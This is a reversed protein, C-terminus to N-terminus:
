GARDYGEGTQHGLPDTVLTPRKLADYATSIVKGLGDTETTVNGDADFGTRTVQKVSTGVAETTVTERNLADYGYSILHNLPDTVTSVNSAAHYTTTTAKRNADLSVTERHLRASLSGWRTPSLRPGRQLIAGGLLRFPGGAGMRRGRSTKRVWGGCAS